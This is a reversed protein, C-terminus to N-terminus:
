HTRSWRSRCPSVCGNGVRREESRLLPLAVYGSHFVSAALAGDVDALEFAQAFHRPEGAGGSAILPVNCVVRAARLQAIDYGCRVGDSDMCNLVIEGLDSSCVDSSWDSIRM